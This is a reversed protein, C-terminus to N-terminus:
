RHIGEKQWYNERLCVETSQVFNRVDMVFKPAYKMTLLMKM